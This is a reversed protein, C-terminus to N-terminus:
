AAEYQVLVVCGTRTTWRPHTGGKPTGQYDGPGYSRDDIVLDGSIVVTHEYSGHEHEPVWAGPECRLLFTQRGWMRKYKVGPAYDRWRGADLRVGDVGELDAAIRAWLRRPPEGAPMALDLGALLQDTEEDAFWPPQERKGSM